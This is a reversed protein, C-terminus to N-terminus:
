EKSRLDCLMRYDCKQCFQSGSCRFDSNEIDEKVAYLKQKFSALEEPTFSVSVKSRNEFFYLTLKITDPSRGFPPYPISSAALAYIGLQLSGQAEKHTIVHESTKYDIIELTGDSLIDVRDMKGGIKLDQDLSITFPEELCLPLRDPMFEDKVYQALYRQGRDFYGQAQNAGLYGEPIWNRTYIELIDAQDGNKVAQYFDKMTRHISNGFSSAAHPPTPIHLLHKAKYHLPCDIFTQIRSYDLYTVQLPSSVITPLTPPKRWDLLSMQDAPIVSNTDAQPGLAEFVFPSIKKARKGEGYFDAATLYLRDRARTMAVYCLRREEQLHFDGQPLIEKILQSPIPISESRSTSPFRLSVLNVLFVVKFELGKASHITLINVADNDGWDTDTASPSEGIEMALEIWEVASKVSADRHGSEFSKLKNFFKTINGAAKEDLPTRYELVASLLGSDQLFYFLIQGATESNLLELHKRIMDVIKGVALQAQSSLEPIAIPESSLLRLQSRGSLSESAAFLHIGFKHAFSNITAIDRAPVSFFEMSLIRFFSSDDDLDDLVKLYAILDKIEPQQFLQAPGLFQFPVAQRSLSRSFPEAHANARVLIAFDSFTLNLDSDKMLSMIEKVVGDAENEVRDFHLFKVPEGEEKLSSVLKKTIGEKIELRDPNNHQILDYSRDLIEQSSRYNQNLVVLKAEPYTNRFQVVNSVAAGRWRYISQDDDAVVTLNQRSGALLEVLKNQAFNTDQFEDVLLYKFKQQYQKLINPRTRFLTLIHSILDAFDMVAEQHKLNEYALNLRALELYKEAELVASEDSRDANELQTNAWQLYDHSSIDEDKLRSFHQILGTLFKSPNGLPRYYKLDFEFIHRRLLSVADADTILQYGPNLGINLGEDKLVRDCFSHFTMVWMQAYGYPLALDIRTEMEKAAKETFTLALIESPLALNQAILWSIRETIVTTKGTGAGAIILLPGQPHVVAEYQASNLQKQSM